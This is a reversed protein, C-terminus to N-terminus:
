RDVGFSLAHQLDANVESLTKGHKVGGSWRVHTGYPDYFNFYRIQASWRSRNSLNPASAHLTLNDIILLDGPKTTPQLVTYRNPITAEDDVRLNTFNGVKLDEDGTGNLDVIPFIGSRHSGAAVTVPGMELTTPVLPMWFTMGDLSRIQYPFEQHWPSLHKVIGPRDIRIGNAGPASGSLPTGRLQQYVASLRPSVILRQFSILNKAMDYVIPAIEPVQAVLQLYGHDFDEPNEAIQYTTNCAAAARAILLGLDRQLPLIDVGPDLWQRAILFGDREFSAIQQEDLVSTAHRM